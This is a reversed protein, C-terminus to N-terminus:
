GAEMKKNTRVHQWNTAKEEGVDLDAEPTRSHRESDTTTAWYGSRIRGINQSAISEVVTGQYPRM